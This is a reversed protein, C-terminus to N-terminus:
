CLSFGGSTQCMGGPVGQTTMQPRDPEVINKWIVAYVARNKVSFYISM